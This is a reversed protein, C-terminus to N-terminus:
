NCGLDRRGEEEIEIGFGKRFRYPYSLRGDGITWALEGREWEEVLQITNEINTGPEFELDISRTLEEEQGYTVGHENAVEPGVSVDGYVPISIIGDPSVPTNEGIELEYRITRSRVVNIIL